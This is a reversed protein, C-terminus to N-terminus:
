TNILFCLAGTNIHAPTQTSSKRPTDYIKHKPMVHQLLPRMYASWSSAPAHLGALGVRLEWRVS